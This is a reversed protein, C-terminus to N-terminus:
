FHESALRGFNRPILRVFLYAAIVLSSPHRRSSYPAVEQWAASVTLRGSLAASPYKEDAQPSSPHLQKIKENLDDDFAHHNKCAQHEDYGIHRQHLPLNQTM